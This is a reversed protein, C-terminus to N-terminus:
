NSLENLIRKAEEKHLSDNMEILPASLIAELESIADKEKKLKLYSKALWLRHIDLPRVKVADRFSKAAENYTGKPIEEFFVNAIFKVFSSLRAVEFHWRGLVHMARHHDTKLEIAKEINNKIVSSGKIMEKYTGYQIFGGMAISTYFYGQPSISDAKKAMEAYDLSRKFYEKRFPVAEQNNVIEVRSAKEAYARAIRWIIEHSNPSASDGKLLIQLEREFDKNLRSSEAQALFLSDSQNECLSPYVFSTYCLLFIFLRRPM